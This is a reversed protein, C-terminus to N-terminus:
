GIRQHHGAELFRGTYGDYQLLSRAIFDDAYDAHRNILRCKRFNAVEALDDGVLRMARRSPRPLARQLTIM